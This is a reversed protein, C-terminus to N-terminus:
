VKDKYAKLNSTKLSKIAGGAAGLMNDNPNDGLMQGFLLYQINEIVLFKQRFTRVFDHSLISKIKQFSYRQCLM